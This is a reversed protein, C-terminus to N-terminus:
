LKISFRYYNIGEYIGEKKMLTFGQKIYFNKLNHSYFSNVYLKKAKLKKSKVKEFNILEKGYNNKHSDKKVALTEIKANKRFYNFM